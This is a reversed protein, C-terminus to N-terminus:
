VRLLNKNTKERELIVSGTIEFSGLSKTRVTSKRLVILFKAM